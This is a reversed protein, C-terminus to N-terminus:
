SEIEAQLVHPATRNPRFRIAPFPILLRLLILAAPLDIVYLPSFITPSSLSSSGVDETYVLREVLQALRGGRHPDHGGRRHGHDIRIASLGCSRKHLNKSKKRDADALAGTERYNRRHFLFISLPLALPLASGPDNAPPYRSRRRQFPGKYTPSKRDSKM